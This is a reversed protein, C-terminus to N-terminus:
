GLAVAMAIAEAQVDKNIKATPGLIVAYTKGGTNHNVDATGEQARLITLTDTSRAMCRVIEVSPDDAPDAYDKNYLTLNFSGDTTPQPFKAGAGSTLALSTAGAAIGTDLDAKAFNKTADM